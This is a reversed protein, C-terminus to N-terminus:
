WESEINEIEVDGEETKKDETELEAKGNEETNRYKNLVSEIDDLQLKNKEVLKDVSEVSIIKYKLFLDLAELNFKNADEENAYNDKLTEYDNILLLADDAVDTLIPTENLIQDRYKSNQMEAVNFISLSLIYLFVFSIVYGEFLGFIAGAIKSPIGLIITAKLIKEILKSVKIIIKLLIELVILVIIFAIIEYFLINIVSINKFFGNFKFFPLNEYMIISVYNKFVFSLVVVLITGVFSVVSHILGRKFGIIAMVIVILIVLVDIINM